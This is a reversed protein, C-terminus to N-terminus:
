AVFFFTDREVTGMIVRSINVPQGGMTRQTLCEETQIGKQTYVLPFFVDGCLLSM